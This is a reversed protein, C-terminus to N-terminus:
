AELSSRFEAVSEDTIKRHGLLKKYSEIIKRGEEEPGDVVITIWSEAPAALMLINMIHKADVDLERYKVRIDGRYKSAMECMLGCPRAHLGSELYIPVKEEIM